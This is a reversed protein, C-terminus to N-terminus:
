SPIRARLQAIKAHRVSAYRGSAASYGAAAGQGFAMTSEAIVPLSGALVFGTDASGEVIQEALPTSPAVTKVNAAPSTKVSKM